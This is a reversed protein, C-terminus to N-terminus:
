LRLGERRTGRRGRGEREKRSRPYRVDFRERPERWRNGWPNEVQAMGGKEWWGGKGWGNLGEKSEGAMREKM